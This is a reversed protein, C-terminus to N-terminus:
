GKSTTASAHRVMRTLRDLFLEAEARNSASLTIKRGTLNIELGIASSLASWNEEKAVKPASPSQTADSSTKENNKAFRETARVSWGEKICRSLALHQLQEDNIALLARAHGKDIMGNELAERTVPDLGLLRLANAITARRKGVLKAIREQTLGHNERLRNYAHAEDLASLDERQLNEVLALILNSQVKASRIMAPLQTWGLQKAARFRREGAILQYRGPGLQSVVVPELLGHTKLSDALSNIEEIPFNRRPQQPDAEISQLDLEAFTGSKESHQTPAALTSHKAASPKGMLASFGKGLPSSTM